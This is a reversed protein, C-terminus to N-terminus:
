RRAAQQQAYRPIEEALARTVSARQRIREVYSTLAPWRRLDIPTVRSWNLVTFLYADAVSFRDLLFEREILAHAVHGFRLDVLSLAYQKVSEHIGAALLPNYVAKHLETSVFSLWQQLRARGLSGEASSSALGRAPVLDALHQLIAVNEYLLQGADLELVPVLGLPNIQRYDRGDQTLQTKTDVEVFELALEAEYATIRSALSCALPSHYLKMM